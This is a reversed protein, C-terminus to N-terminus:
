QVKLVNRSLDSKRCRSSAKVEFTHSALDAFSYIFLVYFLIVALLGSIFCCLDALFMKIKCLDAINLSSTM